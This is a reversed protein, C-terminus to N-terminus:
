AVLLYREGGGREVVGGGGEWAERPWQGQELQHDQGQPRQLQGGQDQSTFRGPQSPALGLYRVGRGGERWGMGHGGGGGGVGREQDWCWAERMWQGQELQHDQGQPPQLQGGQDQSTFRGPQSPALRLYRVGGGERWVWGM